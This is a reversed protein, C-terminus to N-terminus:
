PSKPDQEIQQDTSEIEPYATTYRGLIPTVGLVQPKEDLSVWTLRRLIHKNEDMYLLGTRGDLTETDSIEMRRLESVLRYADMGMPYLRLYANGGPAFSEMINSRSSPSTDDDILWPIDPIEVGKIDFSQQRSITGDWAKSTSYLPLDGAFYFQLLPKIQQLQQGDSIAFIFDTDARRRPEFELKKGLVRQLRKNRTNSENLLLVHQISAAYDPTAPDYNELQVPNVSLELWREVFASQLREGAPNAPSLLAPYGLGKSWAWEAVQRAEDEPSLAYQYLNDPLIRDTVVQNLALVPIPLEGARALQLVAEKSLPGIIIDAGQDSIQNILPWIEDARASDHFRIEPRQNPQSEYWAMMLGNRIADAATAYKGSLPLLVAIQDVELEQLVRQSFYNSLLEPLAPHDPYLNQWERYPGIVLQPDHRYSRAIRSLEVWGSHLRPDAATVEALQDDSTRGLHNLIALQNALQQSQDDLVLDLQELTLIWNLRDQKMLYAQAQNNFYRQKLDAPDPDAPPAGLVALAQDPLSEALLMESQIVRYRLAEDATLNNTDVLALTDRATEPQTGRSQSEAAMLRMLNKAEEPAKDILLLYHEAAQDYQQQSFLQAAYIVEPDNTFATRPDTRTVTGCGSLVILLISAIVTLRTLIQM